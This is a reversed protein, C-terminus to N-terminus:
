LIESKIRSWFGQNELRFSRVEIPDVKPFVVTIAGHSVSDMVKVGLSEYRTLISPKPHGFRNKYGTPILALKPSVLNLFARSSSTKSGHHPVSIVSSKLKDGLESILNKEVRKEIDGTLLLSHKGNSVRIVCSLNNDSVPAKTDKQNPDASLKLLPSLVEFDVGDWQWRMGASCTNIKRQNFKKIKSGIITDIQVTKLLFNAGGTHDIDNHSLVLTDVKQVRKNKLYPVVVLKGMDFSKSMRTGVDYVLTHNKTHIVSAMGQGADLLVFEFEGEKPRDVTFFLAPLFAIVGLWRAPFGKPLLLFLLGLFALTLYVTPVGAMNLDNISLDSLYSLGLFLWDISLASINFLGNSLYSSIPMFALGLLSLPVVIFSVWPIAFLNAIPSTLSANGFFLLTLPLMGLSLVVQLKILRFNPQEIQRKILIIILSVALFSLWFSITMAALPDVLLVALMASALINISSFNRRIILGFIGVLVMLLARQTPLTFGALLAYAIAFLMGVIGGAIRLPIKENLIPFLWWILFIPIFGFGAVVAIHLGSIAILHSTGTKQLQQWQQDNLQSRSAIVLASIVASSTKNAVNDQINKNIKQRLHNISWWPPEALRINENITSKRVYGTAIIRQTFLWKEYDFGGPNLFGSPHKMRVKFQWREDASISQPSKFWSLRVIGKLDIQKNFLDGESPIFAKEIKLRFRLSKNRIEPLGVVKGQILIEKGEWENALRNNLNIHASLNAFLLGLFFAIFVLSIDDYFYGNVFFKKKYILTMIVFMFFVIVFLWLPLIQPLLQLCLTGLLFFLVFAPMKIYTYSINTLFISVM